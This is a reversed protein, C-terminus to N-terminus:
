RRQTACTALVSDLPVLGLRGGLQLPATIFHATCEVQPLGFATVQQRVVVLPVVHLSSLSAACHVAFCPVTPPVLVLQQSAQEVDPLARLRLVVVVVVVVGVVVVSGVQPPEEKGVQPPVQGAPM